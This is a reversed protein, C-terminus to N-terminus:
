LIVGKEVDSAAEPATPRGRRPSDSTTDVMPAVRVMGTTSGMCQSAVRAVNRKRDRRKTLLVDNISENLMLRNIPVTWLRFKYRNRKGTAGASAPQGPLAPLAPAGVGDGSMDTGFAVHWLGVDGTPSAHVESLCQLATHIAIM